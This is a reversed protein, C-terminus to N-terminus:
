FVIGARVAVQNARRDPGFACGESAPCLIPTITMLYDEVTVRVGVRRGAPRFELGGGILPGADDGFGAGVLALGHLTRKPALNVQGFAAGRGAFYPWSFFTEAQAGASLWATGLDVTAGVAITPFTEADVSRTIGGLAFGHVEQASASGSAAVAVSVLAAMVYRIM